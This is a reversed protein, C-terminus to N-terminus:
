ESGDDKSAEKKEYITLKEPPKGTVTKKLNTPFGERDSGDAKMSSSSIGNGKKKKKESSKDTADDGKGEEEAIAAMLSSLTRIEALTKKKSM